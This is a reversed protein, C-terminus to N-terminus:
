RAHDGAMTNKSREAKMRAAEGRWACLCHAVCSGSSTRAHLAALREGLVGAKTVLSENASPFLLALRSFFINLMGAFTPPSLYRKDALVFCRSLVNKKTM